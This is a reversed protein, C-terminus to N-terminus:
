TFRRSPHPHNKEDFYPKFRNFLAAPAKVRYWLWSGGVVLVVPVVAALLLGWFDAHMHRIRGLTWAAGLGLPALILTRPLGWKDYLAHLQARVWSRRERRYEVGDSRSLAWRRRFVPFWM